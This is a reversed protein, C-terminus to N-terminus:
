GLRRLWPGFMEERIEVRIVICYVPKQMSKKLIAVSSIKDKGSYLRM